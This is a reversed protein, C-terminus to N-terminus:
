PSRAGATAVREWNKRFEDAVTRPVVLTAQAEGFFDILVDLLSSQRQDAALDLWVSTEVLMHFM